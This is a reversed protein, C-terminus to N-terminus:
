GCIIKSPSQDIRWAMLNHYVQAHM